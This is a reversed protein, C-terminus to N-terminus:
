ARFRFSGGSLGKANGGPRFLEVRRSRVNEARRRNRSPARVHDFGIGRNSQDRAEPANTAALVDLLIQLMQFAQGLRREPQRVEVNRDAEDGDGLARQLAEIVLDEVDIVYLERPGAGDVNGARLGVAEPAESAAPAHEYHGLGLRPVLIPRLPDEVDAKNDIRVAGNYQLVVLDRGQQGALARDRRVVEEIPPDVFVAAIQLREPRDGVRRDATQPDHHRHLAGVGFVAAAQRQVARLDDIAGRQRCGKGLVIEELDGVPRARQFVVHIDHRGVDSAVMEIQVALRRYVGPAALRHDNVIATRDDALLAVGVAGGEDGAHDIDLRQAMMPLASLHCIPRLLDAGLQRLNNVLLRDVGLIEIEVFNGAPMVLVLALHDVRLDPKHLLASDPLRRPAASPSSSIGSVTLYRSSSDLIGFSQYLMTASKGRGGSGTSCGPVNRGTPGCSRSGSNGTASISCSTDDSRVISIGSGTRTM